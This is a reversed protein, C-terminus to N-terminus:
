KGFVIKFVDEYTEALYIDLNEKAEKSIEELDRENKKPVIVTKIGSRYAAITKEKLGGIPFVKGRLTIEGTMAIDNPVPKGTLASILSTTFTVGASPGDKPTAGDPSHVHIDFDNFIDKEKGDVMVKREIGFKDANAKIYSLAIKASEQM